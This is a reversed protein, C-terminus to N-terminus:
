QNRGGKWALFQILDGDGGLIDHGEVVLIDHGEVVLAPRALLPDFLALATM